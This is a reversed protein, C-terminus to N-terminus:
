QIIYNFIVRLVPDKHEAEPYQVRYSSHRGFLGTAFNKASEETRQTATYKFQFNM